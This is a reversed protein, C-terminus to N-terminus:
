LIGISSYWRYPESCMRPVDLRTRGIHRSTPLTGHGAPHAIRRSPQPRTTTPGSCPRRSACDVRIDTRWRAYAPEGLQVPHEHTASVITAICCIGPHHARDGADLRSRRGRDPGPLPAHGGGSQRALSAPTSTTSGRAPRFSGTLWRDGEMSPTIMSATILAVPLGTVKCPAAQRGRHCRARREM